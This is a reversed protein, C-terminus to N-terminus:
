RGPTSRAPLYVAWDPDAGLREWTRGGYELKPGHFDRRDAVLVDPHFDRFPPSALLPATAPTALLHQLRAGPDADLAGRWLGYECTGDQPCCHEHELIGIRRGRLGAQFGPELGPVSARTTAAVAQPDALLRLPRGRDACAAWLGQGALLAALTWPLIPGRPRDLALGLPAAALGWLPLELRTDWLNWRVLGLYLLAGGVGALWYRRRPGGLPRTLSWALLFMLMLTQLPAGSYDEHWGACALAYHPDGYPSAVSFVWDPDNLPLRLLAHLRRVASTVAANAALSPLRLEDGLSKLGNSLVAAPGPDRLEHMASSGLPGGTLALNRGWYGLNPAAVLAALLLLRAAHPRNRGPRLALWLGFCPVFLYDTGKLLLAAGLAAAGWLDWGRDPERDHRLCFYATLMAGFAAAVDSQATSSQDVAMPTAIWALVALAQARPSGGLSRAAGAAAVAGLVYAFWQMMGSLAASGDLLRFPLAALEAGPPFFDQLDYPTPFLRLSRNGVWQEVRVLHYLQSDINWQPLGLALALTVFAILAAAGLCAISLSDLRPAPAAGGSPRSAALALIGALAAAAWIWAAATPDLAGAASLAEASAFCLWLFALSAKLLADLTDAGRRRFAAAWALGALPPLAAAVAM